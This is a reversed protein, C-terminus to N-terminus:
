RDLVLKNSIHIRPALSRAIQSAYKKAQKSPVTGRLVYAGKSTVEVKIHAGILSRDSNLETQLSKAGTNSPISHNVTTARSHVRHACGLLVLCALLSIVGYCIKKM